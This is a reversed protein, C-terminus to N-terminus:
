LLYVAVKDLQSLLHAPTTQLLIRGCYVAMPTMTGLTMLAILIGGLTDASTYDYADLLLDVCLVCAAAAIGLLSTPNLRPLLLKSLGPVIQCLSESMDTVHEQLWSSASADMVHNLARKEVGYVCALHVSLALLAGLVIRSTHVTSPEFLREACQKMIFFAGLCALIVSTFVAVVELRQWGYTHSLGSASKHGVWLTLLAVGLSCLDFTLLYTFATLAM